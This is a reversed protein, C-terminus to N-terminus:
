GVSYVTPNFGEIKLIIFEENLELFKQSRNILTYKDDFLNGPFLQTRNPVAFAAAWELEYNKLLFKFEFSGNLNLGDVIM